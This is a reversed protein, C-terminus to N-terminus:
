ISSLVIPLPTPPAGVVLGICQFKFALTADRWAKAFLEIQANNETENTISGNVYNSGVSILANQLLLKASSITTIVASGSGATLTDVVSATWAANTVTGATISSAGVATEWASAIKSAWSTDVVPDFGAALLESAFVSRNFTFIGAGGGVAQVSDGKDGYFDALNQAGLPSSDTSPMQLLRDVWSSLPELAM